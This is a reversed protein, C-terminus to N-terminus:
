ERYHPHGVLLAVINAALLVVFATATGSSSLGTLLLLPLHLFPLAIATWFALGTIPSVVTEGVREIATSSKTLTDTLDTPRTAM